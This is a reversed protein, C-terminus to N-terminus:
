GVNIVEASFAWSTAVCVKLLGRRILPSLQEEVVEKISDEVEPPLFVQVDVSAVQSLQNVAAMFDPWGHVPDELHVNNFNYPTRTNCTLSIEKRVISSDSPISAVFDALWRIRRRSESPNLWNWIENGLSLARLCPMANFDVLARSGQGFYTSAQNPYCLRLNQVSSACQHLIWSMNELGQINGLATETPDPFYHCEYDLTLTSLHSLDLTCHESRLWPSFLVTDISTRIHIALTELQARSHSLPSLEGFPDSFHVNILSLSKLAPVYQFIDLPVDLMHDLHLEVLPVSSCKYLIAAKTESSWGAWNMRTGSIQGLIFIGELNDLLTLIRAIAKDDNIWSRGHRYLIISRRDSITINRVYDCLHPSRSILSLFSESNPRGPHNTVALCPHKFLIKQVTVSLAKSALSCDQLAQNDDSLHGIITDILEQPLRITM